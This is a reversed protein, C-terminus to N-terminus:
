RQNGPESMETSVPFGSDAVDRGVMSASKTFYDRLNNSKCGGSLQTVKSVATSIAAASPLSPM